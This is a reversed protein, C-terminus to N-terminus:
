HRRGGGYQGGAVRASVAAAILEAAPLAVAVAAAGPKPEAATTERRSGAGAATLVVADPIRVQALGNGAYPERAVIVRQEVRVGYDPQLRPALTDALGVIIRSHVEPWLGASELYPNMGPFPNAPLAATTM